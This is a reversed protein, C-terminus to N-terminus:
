MGCLFCPLQRGPNAAQNIEVKGVFSLRIGIADGAKDVNNKETVDAV